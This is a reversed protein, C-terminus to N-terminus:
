TTPLTAFLRIARSGRGAGVPPANVVPAAPAAELRAAPFARLVLAVPALRMTAAATACVLIAVFASLNAM